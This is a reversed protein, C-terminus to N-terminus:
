KPPSKKSYLGVKLHKGPLRAKPHDKLYQVIRAENRVRYRKTPSGLELAADLIGLHVWELLTRHTVPYRKLWFEATGWGQRPDLYQLVRYTVGDPDPVPIGPRYSSDPDHTPIPQTSVPKGKADVFRPIPPPKVWNRSVHARGNLLM